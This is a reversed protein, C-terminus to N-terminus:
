GNLYIILDLLLSEGGNEGKGSLWSEVKSGDSSSKFAKQISKIDVKNLKKYEKNPFVIYYVTHDVLEGYDNGGTQLGNSHYNVDSFATMIYKYLSYKNDERLIEFFLDRSNIQEVHELVFVSDMLFFTVSRFNEKEVTLMSKFDRTILLTHNMKNYNFFLSDNQLIKHDRLEVRAHAWHKEFLLLGGKLEYTNFPSPSTYSDFNSVMGSQARVFVASLIFIGILVTERRFWSRILKLMIHYM